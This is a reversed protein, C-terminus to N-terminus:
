VALGPQLRKQIYKNAKTLGFGNTQYIRYTEIGNCHDRVFKFDPKHHLNDIQNRPIHFSITEVNGSYMSMSLQFEIRVYCDFGGVNFHLINESISKANFTNIIKKSLYKKRKPFYLTEVLYFTVGLLISGSLIIIITIWLASKVFGRSIMTLIVVGALLLIAKLTWKIFSKM